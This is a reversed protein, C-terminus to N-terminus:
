INPLEIDNRDKSRKSRAGVQSFALNIKRVTEGAVLFGRRRLMLIIMKPM